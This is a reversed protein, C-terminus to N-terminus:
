QSPICNPPDYQSRLSNLFSIMDHTYPQALSHSSDLHDSSRSISTHMHHAQNCSWLLFHRCSDIVYICSNCSQFLLLISPYTDWCTFPCIQQLFTLSQTWRHRLIRSSLCGLCMSQIPIPNSFLQLTVILCIGSTQLGIEHPRPRMQNAHTDQLDVHNGTADDKDSNSLAILLPPVGRSGATDFIELSWYMTDTSGDPYPYVLSSSCSFIRLAIADAKESSEWQKIVLKERAQRIQQGWSSMAVRQLYSQHYKSVVLSTVWVLTSRCSYSLFGEPLSQQAQVLYSVKDVSISIM